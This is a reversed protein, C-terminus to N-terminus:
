VHARGIEVGQEGLMEKARKFNEDSVGRRARLEACFDYVVAEEPQMKSPRKNARIDNIIAADLGADLAQMSHSYFEYPSDWSRATMLIAMENLKKPVSSHFRLYEGLAQFQNGMKPSRLLVNFPGNLSTRTGSLLDNVMTKQDADLTEWTLPKFRDGRLNLQRVQQALALSAAAAVLAVGIVIIFHSTRITKQM